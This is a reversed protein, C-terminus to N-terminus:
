GGYSLKPMWTTARGEPTLDLLNWLPWMLDIHRPQQGPEPAVFLLETNYFHFIKGNRRAFVNMVPLQGGSDDEGHYDRNYSNGHSSLLRLGSWGRERAFSRIRDVPSSAVVALNVCQTVHKASGNLGDLFSSCMQCAEKMNPGFMFSYLLLSDKGPEFLESLRVRWVQGAAGAEEFLYDEKLEGGLPLGRRLVAVEEVHRRLEIEAKLLADRAARYEPTENPFRISHM